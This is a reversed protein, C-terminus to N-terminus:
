MKQVHVQNLCNEVEQLSCVQTGTKSASVTGATTVWQAVLGTSHRNIISYVFAAVMSDGAGVTSEPTISFPTAYYAERGDLVVAGDKGMSILVYSIGERALSQGATVVEEKSALRAGAIQELEYLNPKIAFPVAKVGKQMAAGDADLIAKVGKRRALQIYSQYVDHPVGQPLSGSLVVIEAQELLSALKLEFAELDAPSVAFGSENFETTMKSTEDVVKLNTRTEGDIEQFDTDIGQDRLSSVIQKGQLGAIMGTVKVNVGFSRLAKAVNIGKGGIDHRVHKIRNLGGEHLREITVTKDVAPNLTVTLVYPKM